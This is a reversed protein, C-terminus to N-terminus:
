LNYSAGFGALNYEVCESAAETGYGGCDGTGSCGL